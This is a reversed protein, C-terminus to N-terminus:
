LPPIQKEPPKASVVRVTEQNTKIACLQTQCTIGDRVGLGPDFPTVTFQM